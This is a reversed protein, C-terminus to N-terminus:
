INNNKDVYISCIKIDGVVENYFQKYNYDISECEQIWRTDLTFDNIDSNEERFFIDNM